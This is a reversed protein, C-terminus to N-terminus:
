VTTENDEVQAVMTAAEIVESEQQPVTILEQDVAQGSYDDGLFHLGADGMKCCRICSRLFGFHKGAAAYSLLFLCMGLIHAAHGILGVLLFAPTNYFASAAPTINSLIMGTGVITSIVALTRPYFLALTENRCKFWLPPYFVFLVCSVTASVGLAVGLQLLGLPIVGCVIAGIIIGMAMCSTIHANLVEFCPFAAGENLLGVFTAPAEYPITGDPTSKLVWTNDARAYIRTILQGAPYGPWVAYKLVTHLGLRIVIYVPVVWTDSPPLNWAYAMSIFGCGYYVFHVAHSTIIHVSNTSFACMFVDCMFIVWVTIIWAFRPDVNVLAWNCLLVAIGGYAFSFLFAVYLVDGMFQVSFEYLRSSSVPIADNQSLKPLENLGIRGDGDKDVLRRGFFAIFCTIVIDVAIVIGTITTTEM